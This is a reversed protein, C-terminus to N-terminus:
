PGEELIAGDRLAKVQRRLAIIEDQQGAVLLAAQAVLVNAEAIRKDLAEVDAQLDKMQGRLIATETVTAHAPGYTPM